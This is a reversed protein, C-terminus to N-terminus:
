RTRREPWAVKAVADLPRGWVHYLTRIDEPAEDRLATYRLAHRYTSRCHLARDRFSLAVDATKYPTTRIRIEPHLAPRYTVWAARVDISAMREYFTALGTKEAVDQLAFWGEEPSTTSYFVRWPHRAIADATQGINVAHAKGALTVILRDHEDLAKGVSTQCSYPWQGDFGDAKYAVIEEIDVVPCRGWVAIYHTIDGTLVDKGRSRERHARCHMEVVTRVPGAVVVTPQSWTPGDKASAMSRPMYNAWGGRSDVVTKGHWTMLVIAGRGYNDIKQAGPEAGGGHLGITLGGSALLLSHYKKPQATVKVAPAAAGRKTAPGDYYLHLTQARPRLDAAFVVRDDDDLRGNGKALLGGTGDWEEVQIPIRGAPGHLRLSRIPPCPMGTWRYVDEGRLVVGAVV